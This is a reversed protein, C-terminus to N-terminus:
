FNRRPNKLAVWGKMFSFNRSVDDVLSVKNYLDYLAEATDFHPNKFGTDDVPLDVESSSEESSVYEGGDALRTPASKQRKSSRITPCLM